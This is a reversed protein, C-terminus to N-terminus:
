DSQHDHSSRCDPEHIPDNAAPGLQVFASRHVGSRPASLVAKLKDCPNAHYYHASASRQFLFADTSCSGLLSRIDCSFDGARRLNRRVAPAAAAVPTTLAGNMRVAAACVVVHFTWVEHGAPTPRLVNLAQHLLM